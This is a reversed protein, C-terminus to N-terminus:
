CSRACTRARSFNAGIRCSFESRERTGCSVTINSVVCRITCFLWRVVRPNPSLTMPTSNSAFSAKNIGLSPTNTKNISQREYQENEGLPLRPSRANGYFEHEPAGGDSPYYWEDVIGATSSNQQVARDCVGSYVSTDATAADYAYVTGDWYDEPGYNTIVILEDGTDVTLEDGTNDVKELTPSAISSTKNKEVRAAFSRSWDPVKGISEMDKLARALAKNKPKLTNLRSQLADNRYMQVISGNDQESLSFASSASAPQSIPQLQSCFVLLFTIILASLVFRIRN